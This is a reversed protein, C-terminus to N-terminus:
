KGKRDATVVIGGFAPNMEATTRFGYYDFVAKEGKSIKNAMPKVIKGRQNPTSNPGHLALVAGTSVMIAVLAESQGGGGQSIFFISSVGKSDASVTGAYKKSGSDITAVKRGDKASEIKGIRFMRGPDGIVVSLMARVQSDLNQVYNEIHKTASGAAISLTLAIALLLSKKM